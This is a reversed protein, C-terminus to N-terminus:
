GGGRYLQPPISAPQKIFALVTRETTSLSLSSNSPPAERLKRTKISLASKRMINRSLKVEKLM